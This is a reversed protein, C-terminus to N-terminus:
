TEFCGCVAASAAHAHESPRAVETSIRLFHREAERVVIDGSRREDTILGMGGGEEGRGGEAM